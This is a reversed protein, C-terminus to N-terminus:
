EQILQGNKWIGTITTGDPNTLTGKGERVHTYIGDKETVKWEGKYGVKGNYALLYTDPDAIQTVLTFKEPNDQIAPVLYRGTQSYGLQDIVVHTFGQADMDAFFENYDATSKFQSVQRGSFLYFLGPKRTCIIADEPLNKGAYAAMEFYNNFKKEYPADAMEKLTKLQPLFALILGLFLLPNPKANITLKELVWCVLQYLGFVFLFLLIPILPLIFRVGFWVEPWLLLIGFSGALYGALMWKYKPMKVIGFIIVAFILIGAFLHSEGDEGYGVELSPFVSNPIEKGLYRMTNAGFRTFWDAIEMKGLEPRYPNKLFLQTLYSSGGLSQGRLFWPLGLAVFGALYFALMKWQKEFLMYLSIGAILAIGATRIHFAFASVLILLYFNYNKYFPKEGESNMFLWIALTGFFLFPVESMMITAYSLLHFNFLMLVAAAFALMRNQTFRNMLEFMLLATGLLFLGNVVKLFIISHTFVMFAALIVPYGPPFHNHPTKGPVHIDTYGQGSSLAKGLTYYVANDGGLNVKEDFIYPYVFAFAVAIFALWAWYPLPKRPPAATKTQTKAMSKLSILRLAFM